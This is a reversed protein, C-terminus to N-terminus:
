LSLSMSLSMGGQGSGGGVSEVESGVTIAAKVDLEVVARTKIFDDSRVALAWEPHSLYGLKGYGAEGYACNYVIPLIAPVTTAIAIYKNAPVRNGNVFYQWRKYNQTAQDGDVQSGDFQQCLDIWTGQPFDTEFNPYQSYQATNDTQIDWTLKGGSTIIYNHLNVGWAAFQGRWLTAYTATHPEIKVHCHFNFKNAAQLELFKDHTMISATSGMRVCKGIPGAQGQTISTPTLAYKNKNASNFLNGSAEQLPHFAFIDSGYASIDSGFVSANFMMYLQRDVGSQLAPVMIRLIMVKNPQDIYEVSPTILQGTTKDLFQVNKADANILAWAGAFLNTSDFYLPFAPYSTHSGTIKSGNIIVSVGTTDRTGSYFDQENTIQINPEAPLTLTTADPLTVSDTILASVDPNYGYLYRVATIASAATVTVKKGSTSIATPAGWAGSTYVEFGSPSSVSISQQMDFTIDATTGKFNVKSIRPSRRYSTLGLSYLVALALRKGVIDQAAKPLHVGDAPNSAVPFPSLDITSPVVFVSQNNDLLYHRARIQSYNETPTTVELRRVLPVIFWKSIWRSTFIDTFEKIDNTFIYNFYTVYDDPVTGYYGDSEGQFWIIGEPPTTGCAAKYRSVSNFFLYSNTRTYNGWLDVTSGGKSTSVFAVPIRLNRILLNAMEPAYSAGPSGADNDIEGGAINTEGDKPEIAAGVKWAGDHNSLCSAMDHAISYVFGTNGTPYTAHEVGMDNSQGRTLFVAGVGFIKTGIVLSLVTSGANLSRISLVYKCMDGQPVSISASWNATGTCDTWDIAISGDAYISDDYTKRVIQYQVKAVTADGCTGAIAVTASTGTRQFVRGKAPETTKAINGTIVTIDIFDIFALSPIDKIASMDLIAPTGPTDSKITCPGVVDWSYLIYTVGATLELTDGDRLYLDYYRITEDVGWGDAGFVGGGFNSM